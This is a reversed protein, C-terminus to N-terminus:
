QETECKYVATNTLFQRDHHFKHFFTSHLDIKSSKSPFKFISQLFLLGSWKETQLGCNQAKDQKMWNISSCIAAAAEFHMRKSKKRGCHKQNRNAISGCNWIEKIGCLPFTKVSMASTTIEMGNINCWSRRSTTKTWLASRNASITIQVSMASAACWRSASLGRRSQAKDWM